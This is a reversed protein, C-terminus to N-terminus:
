NEAIKSGKLVLDGSGSVTIKAGNITIDGSSKLVITASGCSITLEDAATIVAKKGAEAEFNAGAKIGVDAGASLSMGSGASVSVSAGASISKAGGVSESSVAGVSVALAAGITETKAAGITEMMAAGVTVQYVTGINLTQAAGITETSNAGVSVTENATVTKSRNAGVSFTQNAGVKITQNSGVTVSEDTGVTETRNKGISVTENGGVSLSRDAGISASQNNKVLKTEDKEAQVHLEESGKKDEFRIENFNSPAGGQSSRSKIGSQTKNAPLGYPPMNDGNYVRGTIIPRDPDGELFDVIVEQGIRPIHIGGWGSGAWLQSVRVWCSSKENNTGVRDWHFQVKVRGYQDTTIEDGSEGVVVATQVGEVRPKSTHLGPRFQTQSDIMSLHSKFDADATGGGTEFIAAHLQYQASVVLYEKNQDDRPFDALTFLAGAGLGRANGAAQALEFSVQAEGLRVKVRTDGDATTLFDGPYEFIAGDAHANGFPSSLQSLLSARPRTFDYDTTAFSGPRIQQAVAWTNLHDEDVGFDTPPKYPVSEYGSVTQHAGYGDALVLTHKENEHKFFYYIGEHEMLRSVFNLDSERYQVCFELPAYTGNLSDQIDTFGNDRFVEKIIDVASQAQFIRCNATYALLSLWPRLTVRYRTRDNDTMGNEAHVVIGNFQREGEPLNVYVTMPQGLLSSLDINPDLSMLGLDYSFPAGLSERGSMEELVLTGEPLPTAVWINQETLIAPATV